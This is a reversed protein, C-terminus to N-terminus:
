MRPMRTGTPEYFPPHPATVLHPGRFRSYGWFGKSVVASLSWADM